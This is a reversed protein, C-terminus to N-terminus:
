HCRPSRCIYVSTTNPLELRAGAAFARDILTAVLGNTNEHQAVLQPLKFTLYTSLDGHDNPTFVLTNDYLRQEIEDFHRSLLTDAREACFRKAIAVVPAGEDSLGLRGLTGRCSTLAHTVAILMGGPALVRAIEPLVNPFFYLSFSAVVLDFSGSAYDLRDELAACVYQGCRGADRVHALFPAENEPCADIGIIEADAAVRAAVPATMFGYGCGLDLVRAAHALDLGDLVVERLDHPNTSRRRFVSAIAEHRAPNRYPELHSAEMMNM